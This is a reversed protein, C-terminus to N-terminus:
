SRRAPKAIGPVFGRFAAVLCELLVEPEVIAAPDLAIGVDLRDDNGFATINMPCGLRPGLPYNEEILAGCIHRPGRLGPLTTAAFDVSNAQARLAPVLVRTPLRSITAALAATVRLAPASRAQALREEVVGFQPGPHEAATPVEVRIPAFWNGGAGDGRRLGAPTALRLEPCPLGLREHYFGLGGAAAAVLLDNRSGGLALAAKRAGPVSLVEFRSAMSRSPELSSLPGGTILVQHSVSDAVDLGRQVGRVVTDVVDAPDMNLTTQLGATLPRLAGTLDITVTGPRRDRSPEPEDDTPSATPSEPPAMAPWRPEDLLLDLLSIGGIGDTVVHHARLYLAARGGELGDILAVDWPPRELDFPLPEILAILDLVQRRDGSSPVTMTRVHNGADFGPDDVWVPRRRLRSPDDPRRRLRPAQDAASTLRDVLESRTPPRDLIMLNGLTMRLTPEHEVRWMVAEIPSLRDSV